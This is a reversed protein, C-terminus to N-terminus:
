AGRPAHAATPATIATIVAPADGDEDGHGSHRGHDGPRPSGQDRAWPPRTVGHAGHAVHDRCRCGTKRPRLRPRSRRAEARESTRRTPDPRRGVLNMEITCIRVERVEHRPRDGGRGEVLINCPRSGRQRGVPAEGRAAGPDHGPPLRRVSYYINRTAEGRGRGLWVERRGDGRRRRLVRGHLRDDAASAPAVTARCEVRTRGNLAARVRHVDRVVKVYRVQRTQEAGKGRIARRRKRGGQRAELALSYLMMVRRLTWRAEDAHTPLSRGAPPHLSRGPPLPRRPMFATSSVSAARARYRSETALNDSGGCPVKGMLTSSITPGAGTETRRGM